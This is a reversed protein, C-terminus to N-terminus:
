KICGKISIELPSEQMNGYVYVYREFEGLDEPQFTITLCTSELIAVNQRDIKAQVCECSTQIENIVWVENGINTIRISDSYYQHTKINGLDIIKKEVDITTLEKQVKKKKLPKYAEKSEYKGEKFFYVMPYNQVLGSGSAIHETDLYLNNFM